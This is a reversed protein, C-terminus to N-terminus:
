FTDFINEVTNETLWMWQQTLHLGKKKYFKINFDLKLIPTTSDLLDLM